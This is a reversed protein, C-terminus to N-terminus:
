LSNPEEERQLPRPLRVAMPLPRLPLLAPTSVRLHTPQRVGGAEREPRLATHHLLLITESLSISLEEGDMQEDTKGSM